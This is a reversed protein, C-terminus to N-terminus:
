PVIYHKGSAKFSTLDTVKTVPEAETAMPGTGLVLRREPDFLRYAFTRLTVANVQKLAKILKKRRKFDVKGAPGVAAIEDWYRGAQEALNKPKEQLQALVASRQLDLDDALWEPMQSVFDDFAARLQRADAHPSQAVLVLGPYDAIPMAGAFVVYGLQQETRISNFFPTRISQALLLLHARDSYRDSDAQHYIVLANDNHQVSLQREYGGRASTLLKLKGKQNIPRGQTLQQGVLTALQRAEAPLLNGYVLMDVQSNLSFKRGFNKLDALGTNGMADAIEASPWAPEYLTPVLQQFLQIYPPQKDGNRARRMLEGRVNAFRSSELRPSVLAELVETLLLGQRDNYGAVTIDLGRATAQVDFGLGALFAPYSYENLEDLVMAVYLEAQVRTQIDVGVAPSRLQIRIVSKPLDFQSDQMYWLRLNPEAILREPLKNKSVTDRVQLRGPVFPNPTPLKLQSRQEVALTLVPKPQQVLYPTDYLPSLQQAELKDDAQLVFVNDPRLYDLYFQLLNQDFGEYIYGARLVEPAPYLHLNRALSQVLSAPSRKEQFRFSIDALQKLEDFRWRELGDRKITDIAAFIWAKVLEPNNQGKETLAVSVVFSSGYPGFDNEGAWLSEALGEAKLASLLSSRGEHGLLNAIQTLPKEYFYSRSDPVPFSLRLERLEQEPRYRVELPLADPLFLPQASPTEPRPLQVVANFHETVMRELEALSERGLVVLSMQDASYYRRYFDILLDRIKENPKDALTDLNGVTFRAAPHNPNIVAQFVSHSRRSDDKIKALFEAQVAEKERNVYAETFLPAIFFQAFRDIAGALFDPRVSLFYNTHDLSTYANHSGGSKAIYQPYADAEPYKETGLFLMHELFHALGERGEPDQASGVAVQLSAASEQTSPDSILLVKLGNALEIYKYDREDNASKVPVVSQVISPEASAAISAEDTLGVAAAVIDKNAVPAVQSPESSAQALVQVSFFSAVWWFLLASLYHKPQAM